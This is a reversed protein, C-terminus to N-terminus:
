KLLEYFEKRYQMRSILLSFYVILKTKTYTINQLITIQFCISNELSYLHEDCNLNNKAQMGLFKTSDIQNINASGVTIQFDYNKINSATKFEYNQKQANWNLVM